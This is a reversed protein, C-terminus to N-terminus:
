FGRLERNAARCVDLESVLQDWDREPQTAEHMAAQRRVEFKADQTAYMANLANARELETGLMSIQSFWGVAMLAIVIFLAQIFREHARM